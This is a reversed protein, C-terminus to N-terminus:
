KGKNDLNAIQVLVIDGFLLGGSVICVVWMIFDYTMANSAVLTPGFLWAFVFVGCHFGDIWLWEQWQGQESRNELCPAISGWALAVFSLSASLYLFQALSDSYCILPAIVGFIALFLIDVAFSWKLAPDYRVYELWLHNASGTIFRLFLSVATIFCPLWFASLEMDPKYRVDLLQKLGFGILAAFFATVVRITAEYRAGPM